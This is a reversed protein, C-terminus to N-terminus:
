LEEEDCCQSSDHQQHSLSSLSSPRPLFSFSSKPCLNYFFLLPLPPPPHPSSSSSIYLFFTPDLASSSALVPLFLHPVCPHCKLLPFVSLLSPPPKNSSPTTTPLIQPRLPLVPNNHFSSLLILFIIVVLFSNSPPLPIIFQNSM